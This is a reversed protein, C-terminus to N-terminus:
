PAIRRLRKNGAEFIQNVIGLLEGLFLDYDKNNISV